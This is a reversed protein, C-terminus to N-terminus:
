PLRPLGEFMEGACQQAHYAVLRFPCFSRLALGVRALRLDEGSYSMWQSVKDGIAARDPKMSCGAREHLPGPSPGPIQRDREYEEPTLIVIDRAFGLGSLARDMAVMMARRNGSLHCVVLLDMDSHADSTGKAFSGFLIIREPHSGNALRSAAVKLNMARMAPKKMAGVVGFIAYHKEGLNEVPTLDKSSTYQTSGEM